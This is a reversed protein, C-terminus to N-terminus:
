IVGKTSPITDKNREDIECAMRLAKAFAKFTAEVEHHANGTRILRIAINAKMSTAIGWFFEKVEESPFGFSFSSSEREASGGALFENSYKLENGNRDEFILRGRGSLDIIAEALVDDMIYTFCGARKIGKKEGLAKALASGLVIGVDEITHHTGTRDGKANIRVDILSYSSLTTLMHDFFGIGTVIDSKGRGDLNIELEIDTEKTKRKEIATRM